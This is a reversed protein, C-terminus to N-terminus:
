TLRVTNSPGKLTVQDPVFSSPCCRLRLTDGGVQDRRTLRARATAQQQMPSALLVPPWRRTALVRRRALDAPARGSPWLGFRCPASFAKCAPLSPEPVPVILRRLSTSRCASIARLRKLLTESVSRRWRAQRALVDARGARSRGNPASHRM